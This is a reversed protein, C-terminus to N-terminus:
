NVDVHNSRLDDYEEPTIIVARFKGNQTVVVKAVDGSSLADLISNVERAVERTTRLENNHVEM